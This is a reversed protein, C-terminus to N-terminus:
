RLSQLWRALWDAPPRGSLAQVRHAADYFYSRPLEGYWQRDITFRLREADAAAFQWREHSPLAAKDLFRAAAAANDREDTCVTVLAIEPHRRVVEALAALDEGCYACDLSWLALIFPRGAHAKEIAARSGADFDRFDAAQASFAFALLLVILWGRM